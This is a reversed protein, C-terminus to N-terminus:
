MNKPLVKLRTAWESSIYKSLKPIDASVQGPSFEFWHISQSKQYDTFMQSQCTIWNSDPMRASPRLPLTTVVKNATSYFTNWSSRLQVIGCHTQTDPDSVSCYAWHERAVKNRESFTFITYFFFLCCCGCVNYMFSFLGWGAPMIPLRDHLQRGNWVDCRHHTKLQFLAANLSALGLWHASVPGFTFVAM